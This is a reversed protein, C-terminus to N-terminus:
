AITLITEHARLHTYSVTGHGIITPLLALLFAHGYEVPPAAAPVGNLALEVLLCFVGGSFYLPGLYLWLSKATRKTRGMALYVTLFGMAAFCMVSGRFDDMSVALGSLSVIVLGTMALLTAVIERRTVTERFMIFVTLPMFVPMMNVVLAANAAPIVRAGQIWLIFHVGLALGPLLSEKLLVGLDVRERKKQILFLPLLIIASMLLRLAAMYIPSLASAKIMVVSSAAAGVGVLLLAYDKTM